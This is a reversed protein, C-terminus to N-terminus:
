GIPVGIRAADFVIVLLQWFTPQQAAASAGIPVGIRADPPPPLTPDDALAAPALLVTLVLVAIGHRLVPPLGRM